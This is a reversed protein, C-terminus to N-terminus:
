LCTSFKVTSIVSGSSPASSRRFADCHWNFLTVQHTFRPSYADTHHLCLLYSCLTRCACYQSIRYFKFKYQM